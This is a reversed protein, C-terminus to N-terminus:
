ARQPLASVVLRNYCHPLQLTDVTMRYVAIAVAVAAAAAIVAALCQFVLLLLNVSSCCYASCHLLLLLSM